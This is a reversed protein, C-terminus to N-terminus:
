KGQSRSKRIFLFSLCSLIIFWNLSGGKVGPTSTLFNAANYYLPRVDHSGDLINLMDWHDWNGEIHGMYNWIGPKIDIGDRVQSPDYPTIVDTSWNIPGAMSRTSTIGDNPWYESDLPVQGEPQHTFSGMFNVPLTLIPNTSKGSVQKGSGNLESTQNAWSYYYVDSEASAFQNIEASGDTSMDYFASDKRHYLDGIIRRTYASPLEFLRRGDLGFQDLKFDYIADINLLNVAKILTSILDDFGPVGHYIAHALPSGDNAGSIAALGNVWQNDGKFLDSLDSTRTADREAASGKGLLEILIRSTQVGQSHAILNVKQGKGLNSIKSKNKWTNHNEGFREHEHETSHAVGYDVRTGTLQAYLECARDWSSSIPGMAPTVVTDHNGYRKLEEQIDKFGGFHKYLGLVEDRGWGFFGHVLVIPYDNLREDPAAPETLTAATSLGSMGFFMSGLLIASHRWKTPKRNKM